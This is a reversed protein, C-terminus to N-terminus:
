DDLDNNDFKELRHKSYITRYPQIKESHFIPYSIQTELVFEEKISQSINGLLVNNTSSKLQRFFRDNVFFTESFGIM